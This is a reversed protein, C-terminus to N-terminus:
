NAVKGKGECKLLLHLFCGIINSPETYRPSLVSEAVLCFGAKDSPLQIINPLKRLETGENRWRHFPFLSYSLYYRDYPPKYPYFSFFYMSCKSYHRECHPRYTSATVKIILKNHNTPVFSSKFEKSFPVKPTQFARRTVLSHFQCSLFNCRICRFTVLVSRGRTHLLTYIMHM